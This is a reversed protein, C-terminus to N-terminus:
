QNNWAKYGGKFDFIKKFGMAALKKSARNSRGGSYCYIYIPKEKDLKQFVITFRNTNYSNINIADDIFGANYERPTRIDILQVDKGIVEKRFTEIDIIEIIGEEQDNFSGYSVITLLIIFLKM